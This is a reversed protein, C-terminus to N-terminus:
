QKPNDIKEGCYRCKKAELMIEEACAPCIKTKRAEPETPTSAFEMWRETKSSLGLGRAATFYLEGDQALLKSLQGTAHADRAAQVLKTYEVHMKKRALAIEEKSPPWQRAIGVGFRELSNGPHLFKGNWQGKADTFGLMVQCAFDYGPDPDDDSGHFLVELTNGEKNYYEHPMGPIVLPESYEAGEPCPQIMMRGYSAGSGELRKPGVNFVYLQTQKSQEKIARPIFAPKKARNLMKQHAMLESARSAPIFGSQPATAPTTPVATPAPM